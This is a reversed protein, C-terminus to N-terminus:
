IMTFDYEPISCVSGAVGFLRLCARACVCVGLAFNM